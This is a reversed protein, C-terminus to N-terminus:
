APGRARRSSPSPRRRSAPSVTSELIRRVERDGAADERYELLDLVLIVGLEHCAARFARMTSKGLGHGFPLARVCIVAPPRHGGLVERLAEFTTSEDFHTGVLIADFRAPQWAARLEQLTAAFTVDHRALIRALRGRAAGAVAV